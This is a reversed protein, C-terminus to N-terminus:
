EEDLLQLSQSSSPHDATDTGRYAPTHLLGATICPKIQLPKLMNIHKCSANSLARIIIEGKKGKRDAVPLPGLPQRLNVFVLGTMGNVSSDVPNIVDETVVSRLM